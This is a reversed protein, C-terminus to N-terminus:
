LKRLEPEEIEIERLLADVRDREADSLNNMM